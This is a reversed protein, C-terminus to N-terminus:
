LKYRKLVLLVDVAGFNFLKTIIRWGNIHTIDSLPFFYIESFLTPHKMGILTEDTAKDIKSLYRLDMRKPKDNAYWIIIITHFFFYM